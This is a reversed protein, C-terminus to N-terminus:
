LSFDMAFAVYAKIDSDDMDTDSLGFTFGDKSISVFLPGLGEQHVVVGRVIWRNEPVM